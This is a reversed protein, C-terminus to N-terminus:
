KCLSLYKKDEEMVFNYTIKLLAIIWIMFKKNFYLQYVTDYQNQTYLNLSKVIVYMVLHEWYIYNGDAM